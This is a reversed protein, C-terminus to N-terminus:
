NVEPLLHSFANKGKLSIRLMFSSESKHIMSYTVQKSSYHLRIALISTHDIIRHVFHRDTENQLMLRTRLARTELHAGPNERACVICRNCCFSFQVLFSFFHVQM